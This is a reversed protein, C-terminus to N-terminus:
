KILDKNNKGSNTWGPNVDDIVHVAECRKKAAEIIKECIQYLEEQVEENTINQRIHDFTAEIVHGIEKSAEESLGNIRQEITEM